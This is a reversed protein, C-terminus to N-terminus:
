DAAALGASTMQVRAKSWDPCHVDRQTWVLILPHTEHIFKSKPAVRLRVGKQCVGIYSLVTRTWTLDPKHLNM